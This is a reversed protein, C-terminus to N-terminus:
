RDMSRVLLFGGEKAELFALLREKGHTYTAVTSERTRGAPIRCSWGRARLRSAAERLRGRTTGYVIEVEGGDDALRLVHEVVFTAPLPLRRSPPENREHSLVFSLAPSPSAEVEPDRPLDIGSKALERRVLSIDSESSPELLFRRGDISFSRTSFNPPIEASLAAFCLICAMPLVPILLRAVKM